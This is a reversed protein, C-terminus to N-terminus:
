SYTCTNCIRVYWFSKVEEAAVLSAAGLALLAVTKKMNAMM